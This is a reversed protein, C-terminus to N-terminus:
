TAPHLALWAGTGVYAVAVALALAVLVTAAAPRWDAPRHSTPQAPM